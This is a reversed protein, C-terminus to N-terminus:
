QAVEDPIRQDYEEVIRWVDAAIDQCNWGDSQCLKGLTSGIGNFTRQSYGKHLERMRPYLKGLYTEYDMDARDSIVIVDSADPDSIELLVDPKLLREEEFHQGWGLVDYGVPVNQENYGVAVVEEHVPRTNLTATVAKTIPLCKELSTLVKGYTSDSFQCQRSYYYLEVRQINRPDKVQSAQQEANLNSTDGPGCGLCTVIGM